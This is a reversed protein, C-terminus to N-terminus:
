TDVSQLLVRVLSSCLELSEQWCRKMHRITDLVLIDDRLNTEGAGDAGVSEPLPLLAEM